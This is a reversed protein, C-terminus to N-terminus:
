TPAPPTPSGPRTAPSSTTTATAPPAPACRASTPAPTPSPSSRPPSSRPALRDEAAMRGEAGRHRRRPDARRRDRLPHRALGRRHLRAFAGRLRRVDRDQLPRRRRIGGPHDPRLRRARGDGRRDDIPILEDNLHWGHAFPVVREDAFRRFQDRIMEYDDDLGTAGFSAAGQAELMLAVLRARAADSNGAALLAPVAPTRFAALDAPTAPPRDRAAVDPHRRRAPGPVRRLRDAPDAARDRRLTGRGRPARGLGRARAPRPRPRWGPWATPPSSSAGRARRRLHPRRPHRRAALRDRAAAVLARRSRRRRRCPPLEALPPTAPARARAAETM